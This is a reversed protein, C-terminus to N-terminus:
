KKGGKKFQYKVFSDIIKEIKEYYDNNKFSIKIYIEKKNKIIKYIDDKMRIKEIKTRYELETMGQSKESLIKEMQADDNSVSYSLFINDITVKGDDFMKKVNKNSKLVEWAKSYQLILNYTKGLRKAIEIKKWGATILVGISETIEEASLDRRNLNESLQLVIREEDSPKPIIVAPIKEFRGDTVSLKKIAAYRRHGCVVIFGKGEQYVTIPQQLGIESINNALDVISEKDYGNRINSKVNISSLPISTVNM